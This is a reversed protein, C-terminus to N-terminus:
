HLTRKVPHHEQSVGSHRQLEVSPQLGLEAWGSWPESGRREPVSANLTTSPRPCSRVTEIDSVEFSFDEEWQPDLGFLEKTEKTVGECEMVIKCMPKDIGYVQADAM